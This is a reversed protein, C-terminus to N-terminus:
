STAKQTMVLFDLPMGFFNKRQKQTGWASFCGFGCYFFIFFFPPLAYNEKGTWPFSFNKKLKCFASQRLWIGLSRMARGSARCITSAQSVNLQLM